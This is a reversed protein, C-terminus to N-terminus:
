PIFLDIKLGTKLRVCQDSLMKLILMRLVKILAKMAAPMTASPVAAARACLAVGPSVAVGKLPRKSKPVVAAGM